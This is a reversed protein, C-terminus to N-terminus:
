GVPAQRQHSPHEGHWQYKREKASLCAGRVSDPPRKDTQIAAARSSRTGGSSWGAPAGFPQGSQFAVEQQTTLLRSATRGSTLLTGLVRMGGNAQEALSFVRADRNGQGQTGGDRRVRDTPTGGTSAARLTRV